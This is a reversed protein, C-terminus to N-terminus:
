AFENNVENALDRMSVETWDMGEPSLHEGKGKPDKVLVLSGRDYILSLDTEKIQFDISWGMSGAHHRLIVCEHDLYTMLEKM